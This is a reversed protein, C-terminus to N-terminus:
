VAGGEQGQDRAAQAQSAIEYLTKIARDGSLRIDPGDLHRPPRDMRARVARRRRERGFDRAYRELAKAAWWPTPSALVMNHVDDICAPPATQVKREAAKLALDLQPQGGCTEPQESTPQDKNGAGRGTQGPAPGGVKDSM